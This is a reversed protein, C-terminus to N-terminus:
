LLCWIHINAMHDPRYELIARLVSQLPPVEVLVPAFPSPGSSADLESNKCKTVQGM